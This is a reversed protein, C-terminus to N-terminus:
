QHIARFHRSELTDQLEDHFIRALITFRHAALNRQTGDDLMSVRRRITGNAAFSYIKQENVFAGGPRQDHHFDETGSVVAFRGGFLFFDPVRAFDLPADAPFGADGEDDHVYLFFVTVAPLSFDALLCQFHQICIKSM